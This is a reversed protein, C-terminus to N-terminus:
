PADGSQKNYVVANEGYMGLAREEAEMHIEITWVSTSGFVM